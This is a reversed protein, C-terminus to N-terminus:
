GLLEMAGRLSEDICLMPRLGEEAEKWRAVVALWPLNCVLLEGGRIADAYLVPDV